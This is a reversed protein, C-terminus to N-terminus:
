VVHVWNSEIMWEDDISERRFLFRHRGLYIGIYCCQNRLCLLIWTVNKRLAHVRWASHMSEMHERSHESGIPLITHAFILISRFSASMSFFIRRLIGHFLSSAQLAHELRAHEKIEIVILREDLICRCGVIEVRIRRM